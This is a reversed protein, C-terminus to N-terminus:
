ADGVAKIWTDLPVNRGCLVVVVSRGRWRDATKLFAALAVGASGEVIWNDTRAVTAMAAAIEAETTTVREGIVDRCVPFTVSGAEVAGANAEALTDYEPVDVIEGAELAGLMVASNVAWCGVVESDPRLRRLATGTGGILGGGGVAVFTAALDAPAQEHLEMGLTGQGAMVDFDNYPPMYIRGEAAAAARGAKEADIPAGDIVVVEAGLARIADVKIPLASKAVYITAKVGALAAARAVAKGYNGTSAATVGRAREEDTLLLLRNTAGRIKFSGTPQLHDCKLWVDCGTEASLVASRELPTVAVQPRVRAHAAVIADFLEM